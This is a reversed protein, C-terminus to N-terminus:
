PNLYWLNHQVMVFYCIFTRCIDTIWVDTIIQLYFAEFIQEFWHEYFGSKQRFVQLLTITALLLDLCKWLWYITAAGYLVHHTLRNIEVVCVTTIVEISCAMCPTVCYCLMQFIWFHCVRWWPASRHSSVRLDSSINESCEGIKWLDHPSTPIYQKEYILTDM